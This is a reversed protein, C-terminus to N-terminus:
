AVSRKVALVLATLARGRRESADSRNRGALVVQRRLEAEALLQGQRERALATGFYTSAYM